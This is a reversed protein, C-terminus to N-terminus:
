PSLRVKVTRVRRLWRMTQEVDKPVEFALDRVDFMLDYSAGVNDYGVIRRILDELEVDPRGKYQVIMEQKPEPTREDRKSSHKQKKSM